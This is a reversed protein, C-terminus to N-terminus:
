NSYEPEPPGGKKRSVPQEAQRLVLDVPGAACPTVTREVTGGNPEWAVLRWSGEPALLQWRGDPQAVAWFPNDVIRIDSRMPPHLNCQLRVSGAVRFPYEGSKTKVSGPLDFAQSRDSTFVQHPEQDDNWFEVIDHRQIVLLQPVFQRNKQRVQYRAPEPRVFLRSPVDDLFVVVGAPARAGPRRVVTVTGTLECRRVVGADPPPVPAPEGWPSPAPGAYRAALEPVPVAPCPRAEAHPAPGADPAPRVAAPKGALAVGVALVLAHSM